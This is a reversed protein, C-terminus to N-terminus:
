LTPSGLAPFACACSPCPRERMGRAGGRQRLRRSAARRPVCQPSCKCITSLMM